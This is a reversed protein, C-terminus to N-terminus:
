NVNPSTFIGKIKHYNKRELFFLIVVFIGFLLTNFSLRLALNSFHAYKMLLFLVMAALFTIFIRKLPYVTPYHKQGWLYSVVMMVFYCILTTWAAGKYGMSPILLVNFVLTTVAGIVAIYVGYKTKNTLKYWLSLNFVVGLCINALLLIPVIKLGSFYSKAVFFKIVDIWAMIGLFIVFCFQIFYQTTIAFVEKSNKEKSQNFFFPEAAYRFTQIFLTMLISVKYNAGYIGIQVRIYDQADRAKAPVTILYQLLIRDLTENIMGALGAFLLPLGYSILQKWLKPDFGTRMQSLEPILLVLTFFSALGNAIFVYKVDLNGDYIFTVWTNGNKYLYPCILLFFLNFVIYILINSLKLLAFKKAKNERRLKGFPIASLADASLILAFWRIYEPHQPYGIFSSLPSAFIFFLFFFTFSTITLSIAATSYTKQPDEKESFRFYATEMGYTLLIMLFSVYAYFISIDGYAQPAFMQTHLPVMLYNLFRGLISSLGYIATQGLLKKLPNM